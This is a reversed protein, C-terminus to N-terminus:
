QPPYKESLRRITNINRFTTAMGVAKELKGSLGISQMSPVACFWYLERGDIKFEDTRASMAAIKRRTAPPPRERLFGVFMRGAPPIPRGFPNRGAVAAVEATTRVLAAAKSGLTKHLAAEISEELKPGYPKTTSFVINGSAIFTAVEDFGAIEFIRKLEAMKFVRGPVNVARLFAVYRTRNRATM